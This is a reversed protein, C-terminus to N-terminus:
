PKVRMLYLNSSAEVTVLTFGKSNYCALDLADVQDPKTKPSITYGAVPNGELDTVQIELRDGAPYSFALRGEYSRISSSAQGPVSSAVRFKRLVEGTPSIVYVVTPSAGHMVYANGDDGLAVDGRSVFVNGAAVGSNHSSYDSDGIEARSKAYDDEPEYIKKILRGDPEFVAAYPTTRHEGTAGVLLFRGSKFVLVHHPVVETGTKLTTKSKVSGDRNFAVVTTWALQYPIGDHGIFLRGTSVEDLNVGTPEFTTVLKGEATYERVPIRAMDSPKYDSVNLPRAYVNGAADCKSGGIMQMSRSLPLEFRNTPKLNTTPATSVQQACLVPAVSCLGAMLLTSGKM